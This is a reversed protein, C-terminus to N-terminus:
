MNYAQDDESMIFRYDFWYKQFFFEKFNDKSMSNKFM